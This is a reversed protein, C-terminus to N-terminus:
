ESCSELTSIKRQLRLFLVKLSGIPMKIGMGVSSALGRRITVANSAIDVALDIIEQIDSEAVKVKEQPTM